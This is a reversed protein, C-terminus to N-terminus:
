EDSAQRGSEQSGREGHPERGPVLQQIDNGSKDLQEGDFQARAALAEASNLVPLLETLELMELIREVHPPSAVLVLERDHQRCLQRAEELTLLGSADIYELESLDVIMGGHNTDTSATAHLCAQFASATLLDVDGRVHVIAALPSKEVWCKFM